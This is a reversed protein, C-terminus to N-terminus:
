EERKKIDQVASDVQRYAQRTRYGFLMTAVGSTFLLGMLGGFAMPTVTTTLLAIVVGLLTTVSIGFLGFEIGVSRSANGLNDVESDTVEYMHLSRRHYIITTSGPPALQIAPEPEPEPM